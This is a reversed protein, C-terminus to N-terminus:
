HAEGLARSSVGEKVFLNLQGCWCFVLLFLSHNEVVTLNFLYAM